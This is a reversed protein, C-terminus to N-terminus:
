AFGQQKGKSKSNLTFEMHASRSAILHYPNHLPLTSLLTEHHNFDDYHSSHQNLYSRTSVRSLIKCLRKVHLQFPPHSTLNTYFGQYSGTILLSQISLLSQRRRRNRGSNGRGFCGCEFCASFCGAPQKPQKWICFLITHLNLIADRAESSLFRGNLLRPISQKPNTSAQDIFIVITNANESEM